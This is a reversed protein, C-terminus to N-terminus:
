EGLADPIGIRTTPLPFLSSSAQDRAIQERGSRHPSFAKKQCDIAIRLSCADTDRANCRRRTLLHPRSFMPLSDGHFAAPTVRM